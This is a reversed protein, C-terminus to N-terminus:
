HQIAVSKLDCQDLAVQTIAAAMADKASGAKLAAVLQHMTAMREAANTTPPIGGCGRRLREDGHLLLSLVLGNGVSEFIAARLAWERSAILHADGHAVSQQFLGWDQELAPTWCDNIPLHKSRFLQSVLVARVELIQTALEYGDVAQNRPGAATASCDDNM